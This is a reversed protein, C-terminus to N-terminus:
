EIWGTTACLRLDTVLVLEGGRAAVSSIDQRVRAIGENYEAESLMALQSTM